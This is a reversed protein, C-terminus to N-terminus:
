VNMCVYLGIEAGETGGSDEDAKPVITRWLAALTPRLQRGLPLDQQLAAGLQQTCTAPTAAPCHHGAAPM